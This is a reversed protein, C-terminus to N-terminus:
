LRCEKGVRREESRPDLPQRQNPVFVALESSGAIALCGQGFAWNGAPLNHFMSPEFFSPEGSTDVDKQQRGHSLTVARCPLQADRTPWFLWGGAILGRGLSPLKGETPQSWAIRGSGADVAMVGDRTTAYLRGHATGILHGIEVGDMEWRVTGSVADLCFLRDSDLPAAFVRGDSRFLM